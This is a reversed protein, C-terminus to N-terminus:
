QNKMLTQLSSKGGQMVASTLTTSATMMAADMVMRSSAAHLEAVNMHPLEADFIRMDEAMARSSQSLATLMGPMELAPAAAKGGAAGVPAPLRSMLADFRQALSPSGIQGQGELSPTADMPPLVPTIASNM